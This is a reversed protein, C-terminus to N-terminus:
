EVPPETAVDIEALWDSGGWDDDVQREIRDDDGDGDYVAHGLWLMDAPDEPPVERSLETLMFEKGEHESRFVRAFESDQDQSLELMGNDNDDYWVVLRYFNNGADEPLRISLDDTAARVGDELLEFPEISAVGGFREEDYEGEATQTWQDILRVRGDNATSAHVRVGQMGGEGDELEVRAVSEWRLLAVRVRAPDLEPATRIRADLPGRLGPTSEEFVEDVAGEIIQGCGSGM